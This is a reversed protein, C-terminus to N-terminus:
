LPGRPIRQGLAGGILHGLDEALDGDDIGTRRCQVSAVWSIRMAQGETADVRLFLVPRSAQTRTDGTRPLPHRIGGDLASLGRYSQEQGTDRPTQTGDLVSSSVHLLVNPQPGTAVGADHLGKLFRDALKQNGPSLDHIDLGAVIREPLPQLLTAAYTGQCSPMAAAAGGAWSAVIMGLAMGVWRATRGPECTMMFDGERAVDHRRKM